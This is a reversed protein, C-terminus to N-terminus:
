QLERIRKKVTTSYMGKPHNKLFTRYAKLTGALEARRFADYYDDGLNNTSIKTEFTQKYASNLTYESLTEKDKATMKKIQCDEKEDDVYDVLDCFIIDLTGAIAKYPYEIGESSRTDVSTKITYNGPEFKLHFYENFNGLKGIKEEATSEKNVYIDLPVAGALTMGERAIYLQSYKKQEEFKLAESIQDSSAKGSGKAYLGSCGNITIIFFSFISFLFIKNIM